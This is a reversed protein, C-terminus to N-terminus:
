YLPEFEVFEDSYSTEEEEDWLARMAALYSNM